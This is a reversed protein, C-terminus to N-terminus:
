LVLTAFLVAILLAEIIAVLAWANPQCAAILAGPEAYDAADDADWTDVPDDLDPDYYAPLTPHNDLYFGPERWEWRDDYRDATYDYHM